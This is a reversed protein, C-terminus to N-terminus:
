IHILSLRSGPEFSIVNTQPVGGMTEPTILDKRHVTGTFSASIDRGEPFPLPAKDDTWAAGATGIAASLMLGAAWPKLNKM